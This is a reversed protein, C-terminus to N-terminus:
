RTNLPYPMSVMNSWSRIRAERRVTYILNKRLCITSLLTSHSDLCQHARWVSAGILIFVDHASPLCTSRQARFSTPSKRRLILYIGHPSKTRCPCITGHRSKYFYRLGRVSPGDTSSNFRSHPHPPTPGGASKSLVEPIKLTM